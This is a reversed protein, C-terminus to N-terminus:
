ESQALGTPQWSRILGSIWRKRRRRNKPSAEPKRHNGNIINEAVVDAEASALPTLPLGPSAAADGAAYAQPNSVSQLFENLEIGKPSFDVKGKQLDLGKIEPVRGAANVVTGTGYIVPKGNKKGQVEFADGKTKIATVETETAIEIGLEKSVETLHCVIDQEFNALVTEGREVITVKVGCRAAMHAFEFAIYGGGIFLMSSPLTELNLFDESTLAYEEGPIDLKRTKNGTAIVINGAEITEDGILLQNAAAFKAAGHLTTIGNQNFNKEKTTPTPEVFTQKFAILAKWNITPAIGIGKGKLRSASEYAYTASWLVKKPICGRLVCTGGYERQDVIGTKLGKSACANAIATGSVGTGIVFVDFKKVFFNNKMM